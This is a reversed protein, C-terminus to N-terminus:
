IKIKVSRQPAKFPKIFAKAKMFGKSAGCLLALILIYSLKKMKDPIPVNLTLTHTEPFYAARLIYICYDGNINVEIQEPQKSM